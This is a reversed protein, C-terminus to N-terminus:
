SDSLLAVIRETAGFNLPAERRRIAERLEASELLRQATRVIEAPQTGALFNKGADVLRTWETEDRLILCPRNVVAAEEQIGGSDSMSFLAFRLLALFDLNGIPPLVRVEPALSIGNRRIAAATRPHIPFLLPIRRGVENVASVLGRLRAGDDTNEARHLTVVAFEDPRVAFRELRDAGAFEMTRRTADLSTNGVEHVRGAGIGEAGLNQVAQADPAFLLDSLHDAVIRNAEEPMRRNFSRCGAEVHAVRLGLKSGVLAGALTSNTDGLVVVWDPRIQAVLPELRELMRGTQIGPGIGAEGVGLVRRPRKLRLEEFFVGDMNEDYHQGTHILVHDFLEDFRPLLPSFKVIEPRTGLVTVLSKKM